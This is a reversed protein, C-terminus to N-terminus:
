TIPLMVPVLASFAAALRPIPIRILLWFILVSLAGSAFAAVLNTTLPWSDLPTYAVPVALTRSLFLLYGAYPDWLCDWYGHNAVCLPFLGDEAWVLEALLEQDASYLRGLSIASAVVGVLLHLLGRVKRISHPILATAESGRFNPLHVHRRCRPLDTAGGLFVDRHGCRIGM